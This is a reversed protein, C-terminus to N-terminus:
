QVLYQTIGLKIQHSNTISKLSCPSGFVIPCRVAEQRMKPYRVYTAENMLSLYLIEVLFVAM